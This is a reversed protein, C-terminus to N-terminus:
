EFVFLAHWGTDTAFQQALRQYGAVTFHIMDSAMLPPSQRTWKYASGIGGMAHLMSWTSCNASAAVQAQVREIDFHIKSYQFFDVAHNKLHPQGHQHTALARTVHKKGSLKQRGQQSNKMQVNLSRRVLVGRDGPAILVCAASPFAAKMNNVAEVLTKRYGALNFPKVNGENTGFELMVLQYNRGSFWSNLYDPSAVKWGAITAGPYGFVDLQFVNPQSSVLELGHFRFRGDILRLTVQSIPQEAVLELVAPGAKETLSLEKEIGGDVRIGLVVPTATQQYLIRVRAHRSGSSARRIDWSLKSGAQDSVMNVLGPGPAAAGEGGLYVPEYRWESSVCSRRLPLRVGPRGMTAPLLPGSELGAPLKLLKVLEQTFSGAALHSDGWIAVRYGDGPTIVPLLPAIATSLAEAPPADDMESEVMQASPREMPDPNPIVTKRAPLSPTDCELERVESLTQVPLQTVVPLQAQACAGTPMANFALLLLMIPSRM